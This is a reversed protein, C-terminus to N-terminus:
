DRGGGSEGAPEITGGPRILGVLGDFRCVGGEVALRYVPVRSSRDTPCLWVEDGRSWVRFNKHLRRPLGILGGGTALRPPSERLYRATCLPRVADLDRAEAAALIAVFTAVARRTRMLSRAGRWAPGALVASLVTAVAVWGARRASRSM